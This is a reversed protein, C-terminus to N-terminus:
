YTVPLTNGARAPIFRRVRLALAEDHPTGRALPSSGVSRARVFCRASHEGRSRPHVSPDATKSGRAQTNGARAPIFRDPAGPRGGGPGHEGRSRPHVARQRAGLAEHHRTGRALPSSGPAPVRRPLQHLHEGRSRPHVARPATVRRERDTNGARAPIFRPVDGERAEVPPTGRALPSSGVTATAGPHVTSHEGRSRPHVASRPRSPRTRSTNGARAPIFRGAAYRGPEWSPTGRALPSSGASRPNRKPDAGHEGRSRPHVTGCRCPPWSPGTNGARAPIFRHFRGPAQPRHRTGRALPSSGPGSSASQSAGPHEGRSRPHVPTSRRM